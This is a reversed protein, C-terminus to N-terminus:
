RYYSYFPPHRLELSHMAFQECKKEGGLLLSFSSIYSERIICFNWWSGRGGGYVPSGTGSDELKFVKDVYVRKGM